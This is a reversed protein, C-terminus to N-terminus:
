AAVPGSKTVIVPPKNSRLAIQLADRVEQPLHMEHDEAHDKWANWKFEQPSPGNRVINAFPTLGNDRAAHYALVLLYEIERVVGQISDAVAVINLELVQAELRRLEPSYSVITRISNM